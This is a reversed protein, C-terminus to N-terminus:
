APMPVATRHLQRLRETTPTGPRPNYLVLQWEARDAVTLTTVDFFLPGADPHRLANVAQEPAGVEQRAWLEAFEPSVAGLEDVVRRLEPDGPCVAADARFAAVVAAANAAWLENMARYRPSTFYTILCNHDGDRYDFVARATDNFARVNWYRDRLVAPRGEWGDVLQRIEPPVASRPACDVPPPNSGALLYLHAREPESLQLARAVADLVDASVTIERGQELWTYWSVGVGALVAVEERRLGPTRRRGSAIIGADQPSLRARRTRLFDRLLERRSPEFESTM